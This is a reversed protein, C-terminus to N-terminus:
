NWSQTCDLFNWVRNMGVEGSLMIELPAKHKFKRAPRKLWISAYESNTPYTTSLANYIGVIIEARHFSNESFDFSKQGRKYLYLYRAKISKAMCLLAIQEKDSLNWHEIIQSLKYTLQLKNQDNLQDFKM